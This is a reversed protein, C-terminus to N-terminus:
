TILAYHSSPFYAPRVVVAVVEVGEEVESGWGGEGDGVLM